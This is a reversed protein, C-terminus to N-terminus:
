LISLYVRELKEIVVDWSYEKAKERNNNGIQQRLQEDNTLLIVQNAIQASNKHDVLFGNVGETIIESMGKVNTAVIPLGSGMAELIVNPLGETISPLVFIDSAVMYELVKDNPLEGAFTIVDGLNLNKARMYLGNKELGDGILILRVKNTRHRVTDMAEILYRLGKWPNMNGVWLIIQTDEAIKLEKRIQERSLQDYRKLDIGNPIVYAERKSFKEIEAQMATTLAILADCNKVGFRIMLRTIPNFRNMEYVDSGRGWIAVNKRIFIKACYGLLALNIAQIHIVEPKIKNLLILIKLWFIPLYLFRIGPSKIRHVYFGQLRSERPMGSDLSTIVHIEHGRIALHQAIHYTAIETGALWKPPFQYVIIAIKM